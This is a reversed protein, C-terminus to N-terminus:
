LPDCLLQSCFALDLKQPGHGGTAHPPLAVGVSIKDKEAAAAPVSPGALGLLLICIGLLASTRRHERM